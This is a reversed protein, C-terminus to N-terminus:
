RSDKTAQSFATDLENLRARLESACRDVAQMQADFCDGLDAYFSARREWRALLRAFDKSQYRPVIAM